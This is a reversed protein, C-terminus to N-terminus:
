SARRPIMPSTANARFSRAVWAILGRVLSRDPCSREVLHRLVSACEERRSTGGPAQSASLYDDQCGRKSTRSRRYTWVHRCHAGLSCTCTKLRGREPDTETLIELLLDELGFGRTVRDVM